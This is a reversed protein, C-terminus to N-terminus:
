HVLSDNNLPGDLLDLASRSSAHFERILREAWPNVGPASDRPSSLLTASKGSAGSLYPHERQLESLRRTAGLHNTLAYDPFTAGPVIDARM